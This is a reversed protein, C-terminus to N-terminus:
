CFCLIYSSLPGQVKNEEKGDDLMGGALKEQETYDLLILKRKKKEDEGGKERSFISNEKVNKTSIKM